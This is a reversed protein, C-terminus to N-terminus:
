RLSPKWMTAALKHGRIYLMANISSSGGLVKGRPQYGLRNNLNKQKITKFAWNYIKGYGPLIAAGAIPARIFISKGRGGAEILCVSVKPNESLRSALTSGASGGGVIVFDYIM